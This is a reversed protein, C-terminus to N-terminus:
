ELVLKTACKSCFSDNKDAPKARCEPCIKEYDFSGTLEVSAGITKCKTGHFLQAFRQGTEALFQDISQKAPLIKNEIIKAVERANTESDGQHWGWAFLLKDDVNGPVEFKIVIEGRLKQESM